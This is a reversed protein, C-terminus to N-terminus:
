PNMGQRPSFYRDHLVVGTGPAGPIPEETRLSEPVHADAQMVWIIRTKESFWSRRPLVGSSHAYVPLDLELLLASASEDSLVLTPVDRDAAVLGAIQDAVDEIRRMATQQMERRYLSYGSIGILAVLLIPKAGSRWAREAPRNGWASLWLLLLLPSVVWYYRYELIPVWAADAYRAASLAGLCLSVVLFCLLFWRGWATVSEGRTRLRSLALITAALMVWGAGWGLATKSAPGLFFLTKDLVKQFFLGDLLAVRPWEALWRLPFGVQRVAGTMTSLRGAHLLNLWAILGYTFLPFGLVAALRLLTKKPAQAIGRMCWLGVAPLLFLSHYRMAVMGTLLLGARLWDGAYDRRPFRLVLETLLGMLCWCFLDTPSFSYFVAASGTYALFLAQELAGVLLGRATWQWAWIAAVICGIKFAKVAAFLPLGLKMLFAIVLSYGPPWAVLFEATPASLNAPLSWYTSYGSGTALRSAAHLQWGEDTGPLYPTLATMLLFPSVLLLATWRATPNQM